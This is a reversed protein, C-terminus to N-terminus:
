AGHARALEVVEDPSKSRGYPTLTVQGDTGIVVMPTAPPNLVQDGFEDALARALGQSAIVYRGTFGHRERYEALAAASESPDVDVLVYEVVGPGLTELAEYVHGQQRLCNTCWIAMTEIIIPRGALDALRFSEGTAVDTLVETAWAAELVPAAPGPDASASPTGDGPTSTPASAASPAETAIPSPSGAPDPDASPAGGTSSSCAAVLLVIPALSRLRSLPTM